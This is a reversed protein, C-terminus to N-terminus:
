SIYFMIDNESEDIVMDANTQDPCRSATSSESLESKRALSPNPDDIACDSVFSSGDGGTELVDPDSFISNVFRERKEVFKRGNIIVYSDIPMRQSM